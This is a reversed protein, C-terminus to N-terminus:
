HTHTMHVSLRTLTLTLNRVKPRSTGRVVNLWFTLGPSPLIARKYLQWACAHCAVRFVPVLGYSLGICIAVTPAAMQMLWPISQLQVSTILTAATAVVHYLKVFLHPRLAHLGCAGRCISLIKKSKGGVSFVQPM